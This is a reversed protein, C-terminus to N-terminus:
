ESSRLSSAGARRLRIEVTQTADLHERRRRRRSKLLVGCLNHSTRRTSGTSDSELTTPRSNGTSRRMLRTGQLRGHPGNGIWRRTTPFGDSLHARRRDLSGQLTHCAGGPPFIGWAYLLLHSMQCVRQANTPAFRRADTDVSRRVWEADANVTGEGPPTYLGPVHTVPTRLCPNCTYSSM